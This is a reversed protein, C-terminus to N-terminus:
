RCYTLHTDMIIAYHLIIHGYASMESKLLACRFVYMLISSYDMSLPTECTILDIVTGGATTLPCLVIFSHLTQHRDVLSM